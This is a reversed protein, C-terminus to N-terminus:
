FRNGNLPGARRRTVQATVTGTVVSRTRVVKDALIEARRPEDSASSPPCSPISSDRSPASVTAPSASSSSSGARNARRTTPTASTARCVGAPHEGAHVPARTSPRQLDVARERAPLRRDSPATTGSPRAAYDAMRRRHITGRGRRRRRDLLGSRFPAGARSRRTLRDGPRAGALTCGGATSRYGRM